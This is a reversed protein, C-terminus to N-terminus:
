FISMYMSRVFDDNEVTSFDCLDSHSNLFSIATNINYVNIPYGLVPDSFSFIVDEVKDEFDDFSLELVLLLYELDWEKIVGKLYCNLISVLDECKLVDKQPIGEAFVIKSGHGSLVANKYQIVGRKLSDYFSKSMTGEESFINIEKWNM